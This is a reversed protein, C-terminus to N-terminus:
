DIHFNAKELGKGSKSGDTNYYVQIVGDIDVLDEYSEINHHKIKDDVIRNFVLTTITECNPAVWTNGYFGDNMVGGISVNNFGISLYKDDTKNVIQLEFGETYFPPKSHELITKDEYRALVTVTINDNDLIVVPNDYENVVPASNPQSTETTTEETPTETENPTDEGKPQSSEESVSETPTSTNTESKGCACLALCMVLVLLFAIARKM